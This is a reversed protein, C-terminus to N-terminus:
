SRLSVALAGTPCQTHMCVKRPCTRIGKHLPGHPHQALAFSLIVFLRLMAFPAHTCNCMVAEQHRKAPPQAFLHVDCKGPM